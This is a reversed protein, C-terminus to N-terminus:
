NIGLKFPHCLYEFIKALMEFQPQSLNRGGGEHHYTITNLNEFRIVFKWLFITRNFALRLIHPLYGVVYM